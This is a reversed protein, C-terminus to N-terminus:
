RWSRRHCRKAAASRLVVLRGEIIFDHGEEQVIQQMEALEEEARRLGAEVRWRFSEAKEPTKAMRTELEYSAHNAYGLLHAAEARLQAVEALADRNDGPGGQGGRARYADYMQKRLDRQDAFTMFGEYTGRDLGFNWADAQGKAQAKTRASGVLNAPLGSLDAPDKVLLEFANTEKLLNQAFLTNLEAIRANIEKM